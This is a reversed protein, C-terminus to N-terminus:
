ETDLTSVVIMLVARCCVDIQLVFFSNEFSYVKLNVGQFYIIVKGFFMTFLDLLDQSFFEM